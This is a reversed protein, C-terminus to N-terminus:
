GRDELKELRRDTHKMWERMEIRFEAEAQAAEASSVYTGAGGGCFMAVAMVVAKILGFYNFKAKTETADM